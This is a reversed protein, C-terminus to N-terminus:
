ERTGPSLDSENRVGDKDIRLVWRSGNCKLWSPSSEVIGAAILDDRKGNVDTDEDYAMLHMGDTLKVTKGDDTICEDNHSICLIDGFLGNFDARVRVGKSRETQM